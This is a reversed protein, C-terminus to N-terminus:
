PWNKDTILVIVDGTDTPRPPVVKPESARAIQTAARRPTPRVLSAPAPQAASAMAGVAKQGALAIRLGVLEKKLAAIESRVDDRMGFELAFRHRVHRLCGQEFRECHVRRFRFWPRWITM